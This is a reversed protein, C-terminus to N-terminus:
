LSPNTDSINKLLCPILLDRALLYGKRNLHLNDDEFYEPNGDGEKILPTWIDVYDIQPNYQAIGQMYTNYGTYHYHIDTRLVGPKLSLFILHVNPLKKYLITIFEDMYNRFAEDDYYKPDNDGTYLVIQSPTYRFILTEINDLVYKLSTGGVGTNIVDFGVFDETLTTWRSITSSGTFLIIEGPDQKECRICLLASLILVAIKLKNM